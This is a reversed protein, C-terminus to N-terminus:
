LLVSFSVFPEPLTSWNLFILDTGPVSHFYDCPLLSLWLLLSFASFEGSAWSGVTSGLLSKPIRSPFHKECCTRFRPLSRRRGERGEALAGGPDVTVGKQKAPDTGAAVPSFPWPLFSLKQSAGRGQRAQVGRVGPGSLAEKKCNSRCCATGLAWPLTPHGPHSDGVPKVAEPSLLASLARDPYAAEGFHM